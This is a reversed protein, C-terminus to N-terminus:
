APTMWEDIVEEARKITPVLSLVEGAHRIQVMETPTGPRLTVLTYGRYAVPLPPMGQGGDGRTM